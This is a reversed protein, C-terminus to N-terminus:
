IIEVKLNELVFTEDQLCVMWHNDKNYYRVYKIINVDTIYLNSPICFNVYEILDLDEKTESVVKTKCAGLIPIILEHETVVIKPNKCTFSIKLNKGKFDAFSDIKKLRFVWDGSRQFENFVWEILWGAERYKRLIESVVREDCGYGLNKGVKHFNPYPEPKVDLKKGEVYYNLLQDDIQKEYLAILRKQDDTFTEGISTEKIAM